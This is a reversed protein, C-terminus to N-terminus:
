TTAGLQAALDEVQIGKFAQEETIPYLLNTMAGTIATNIANEESWGSTPDTYPVLKVEDKFGCARPMASKVTVTWYDYSVKSGCLLDTPSTIGSAVLDVAKEVDVTCYVDFLIPTEGEETNITNEVGWKIYWHAEDITDDTSKRKDSDDPGLTANYNENALNDLFAKSQLQYIGDKPKYAYKYDTGYVKYNNGNEDKKFTGDDNKAYYWYKVRVVEPETIEGSKLKNCSNVWEDYTAYKVKVYCKKIRDADLTTQNLAAQLKDTTTNQIEYFSVKYKPNALATAPDTPPAAKTQANIVMPMMSELCRMMWLTGDEKNCRMDVFYRRYEYLVNLYALFFEDLATNECVTTALDKMYAISQLYQTYSFSKIDVCAFSQLYNIARDFADKRDTILKQLQKRKAANTAEDNDFWQRAKVIWQNYGYIEDPRCSKTEDEPDAFSTLGPQCLKYVKNSILSPNEADGRLIKRVANFDITYHIGDIKGCFFDEFVDLYGRQYLLQMYFARIAVDCPVAWYYNLDSKWTGSADMDLQQDIYFTGRTCANLWAKKMGSDWSYAYSNPPGGGPMYFTSGNIDMASDGSNTVNNYTFNIDSLACTWKNSQQVCLRSSYVEYPPNDVVNSNLGPICGLLGYGTMGINPYFVESNNNAYWEGEWFNPNLLAEVGTVECKGPSSPTVTCSQLFNTSDMSYNNTFVPSDESTNAYLVDYHNLKVEIYDDWGYRPEYWVKKRRFFCSRKRRTWYMYQHTKHSVPCRFINRPGNVVRDWSSSNGQLFIVKADGRQTSGAIDVLYRIAEQEAYSHRLVRSVHNKEDTFMKYRSTGSQPFTLRFVENYDVQSTAVCNPTNFLWRVIGILWGWIGTGWVSASQYTYFQCKQIAWKTFPMSHISYKKYWVVQRITYRGWRIPSLTRVMLRNGSWYWQSSENLYASWASATGESFLSAISGSYNTVQMTWWGWYWCTCGPGHQEYYIPVGKISDPFVPWSSCGSYVMYGPVWEEITTYTVAQAMVYCSLGDKLQQMGQQFSHEYPRTWTRNYHASQTCFKEAGQFYKMSKDSTMQSVGWESDSSIGDPAIRPVNRLTSNNAEFYSQITLPSHYAGHPGGFLAPTRQCIGTSKASDASTSDLGLFSGSQGSESESSSSQGTGLKSSLGANNAAQLAGGNKSGRSSLLRKTASKWGGGSSGMDSSTNNDVSDTDAYTDNPEEEDPGFLDVQWNNLFNTKIIPASKVYGSNATMLMVDADTLGDDATGYLAKYYYLKWDTWGSLAAGQFDDWQIRSLMTRTSLTGNYSDLAYWYFQPTKIPGDETNVWRINSKRKKWNPYGIWNTSLPYEGPLWIENNSGFLKSVAANIVGFTYAISEKGSVPCDDAMRYTLAIWKPAFKSNSLLGEQMYVSLDWDTLYTSVIGSVREFLWQMFSINDNLPKFAPTRYTFSGRYDIMSNLDIKSDNSDWKAQAEADDHEAKLKTDIWDEFSTGSLGAAQGNNTFPPFWLNAYKETGVNHGGSPSYTWTNFTQYFNTKTYMLGQETTQATRIYTPLSGKVEGLRYKIDSQEPAMYLSYFKELLNLAAETKVADAVAAAEESQLVSSAISPKLCNSLQAASMNSPNDAKQSLNYIYGSVGKANLENIDPTETMLQSVINDFNNKTNTRSKASGVDSGSLYAGIAGM